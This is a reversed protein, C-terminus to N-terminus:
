GTGVRSISGARVDSLLQIVDAIRKSVQAAHNDFTSRNVPTFAPPDGSKGIYGFQGLEFEFTALVAEEGQRRIESRVRSRFLSKDSLEPGEINTRTTAFGDM